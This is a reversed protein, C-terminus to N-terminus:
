CEVVKVGVSFSVTIFVSSPVFTYSIQTYDTKVVRLTIISLTFWVFM